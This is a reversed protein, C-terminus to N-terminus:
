GPSIGPRLAVAPAGVRLPTIGPDRKRAILLHAMRFGAFPGDSGAPPAPDYRSPPAWHPGVHRVRELDLGAAALLAALRHRGPPALGRFAWRLRLPALPNLTVLMAVGDPKLVRALEAVLAAPDPSTECVFLAYALALSGGAIPLATDRCALDGAFRDEHRHLSVVEALMNGSLSPPVADSPRLYLGSHGFVRTLEPLVQRQVEHVLPLHSPNRFWAVAPSDPQRRAPAAPM